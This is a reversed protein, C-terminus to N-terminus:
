SPYRVYQGMSMIGSSSLALRNFYAAFHEESL